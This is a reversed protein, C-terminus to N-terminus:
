LGTDELSEAAVFRDLYADLEAASPVAQVKAITEPSLAGFKATLFRLLTERKGEIIGKKLLRDSWTEKVEQVTRYDKRSFLHELRVREDESLKSYTEIVNLLLFKRLGEIGSTAVRRQM